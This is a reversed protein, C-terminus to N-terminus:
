RKGGKGREAVDLANGVADNWTEGVGKFLLLRTLTDRGLAVHTRDAPLRSPRGRKCKM